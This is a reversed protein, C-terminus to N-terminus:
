FRSSSHAGGRHNCRLVLDGKGAGNELTGTRSKGQLLGGPLLITEPWVMHGEKAQTHSKRIEGGAKLGSETFFHLGSRVEIYGREILQQQIEAVPVSRMRSLRTVSFRQIESPM